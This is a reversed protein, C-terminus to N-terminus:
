IIYGGSNIATIHISTRRTTCISALPASASKAATYWHSAASFPPANLEAPRREVRVDPLLLAVETHGQRAAEQVRM